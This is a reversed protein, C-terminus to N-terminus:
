PWIYQWKTHGLERERFFLFLLRRQVEIYLAHTSNQFDPLLFINSRDTGTTKPTVINIIYIHNCSYLSCKYINSKKESSQSIKLYKLINITMKEDNKEEKGQYRDCVHWQLMERKLCKTVWHLTVLINWKGQQIGSDRCLYDSHRWNVLSDNNGFTHVIYVILYSVWTRDM